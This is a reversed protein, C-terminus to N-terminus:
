DPHLRKQSWYKQIIWHGTWGVLAGIVLAGIIDIPSHVHAAVRAIGVVVTIGLGIVALKKNFFYIVSTLTMALLTHDSPFGNDNGHHILPNVNHTVFPRPDYFLKSAVRSVILALIAAVLTTLILQRRGSGAQWLVVL